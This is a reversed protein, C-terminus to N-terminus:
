AYRASKGIDIYKSTNICYISLSEWPKAMQNNVRGDTM